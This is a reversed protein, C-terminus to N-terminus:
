GATTRGSPHRGSHCRRAADRWRNGLQMLPRQCTGHSTGLHLDEAPLDVPCGRASVGVLRTHEALVNPLRSPPRQTARARSGCPGISTGSVGFAIVCTTSTRSRDAHSSSAACTSVVPVKLATPGIRGKGRQISSERATPPCLPGTTIAGGVPQEPLAHGLVHPRVRERHPQDLRASLAPGGPRSGCGDRGTQV